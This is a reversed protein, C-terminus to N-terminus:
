AAAGPLWRRPEAVRALLYEVYRERDTASGLWESPVDAVAAEIAAATLQGALRADAAPVRDLYASMIHKDYAYPQVAFRQAGGDDSQSGHHSQSQQQTWGHQSRQKTWGHHFYLAAGHDICWLQKHWILLNPNQWSRDVNAVFADLWMITSAEAPDLKASAGDFGLAGPLFDVGLNLGISANLLDQVEEDAEYRAIAPDLEIARLEPVRLGITRALAAVIVEAILAKAGQGAGRFKVVYTGCDDAEVLGPLSGGERLPAVYRTALVHDLM